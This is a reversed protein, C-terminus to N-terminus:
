SPSGPLRTATPDAARRTAAPDAIVLAYWRLLEREPQQLPVDAVAFLTRNRTARRPALMETWWYREVDTASMLGNLTMGPQLVDTFGGSASILRFEGQVEEALGLAVQPVADETAMAASLAAVVPALFDDDVLLSPGRDPRFGVDLDHLLDLQLTRYALCREEWGAPELSTTRATRTPMKIGANRDLTQAVAVAGLFASVVILFLPDADLKVLLFTGVSALPAALSLAIAFRRVRTRVIDIVGIL